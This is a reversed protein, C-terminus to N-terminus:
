YPHGSLALPALSVTSNVPNSIICIFAKPCYEAAAEALSKVIGANIAFLDDRTMGPQVLLTLPASLTRQPRFAGKPPCRRSVADTPIAM